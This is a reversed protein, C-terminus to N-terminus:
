KIVMMMVTCIRTNNSWRALGFATRRTTFGACFHRVGSNIEVHGYVSFRDASDHDIYTILYIIYKIIKTYYILILINCRTIAPASSGYKVKYLKLLSSSAKFAFSVLNKM